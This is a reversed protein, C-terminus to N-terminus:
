ATELNRPSGVPPLDLEGRNKRVVLVSCPAYRAVMECTHGLHPCEQNGERHDAIVILDVQNDFAAMVIQTAPDGIAAEIRLGPVDCEDGAGLSGCVFDSIRSRTCQLREELGRAAEVFPSGNVMSWATPKDPEEVTIVILEAEECHALNGGVVLAAASASSFDNAVLIRKENLM